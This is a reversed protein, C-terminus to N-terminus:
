YAPLFRQKAKKEAKEWGEERGEEWGRMRGKEWGKKWGIQELQEAITVIKEKQEDPSLHILRETFKEPDATNGVQLMYNLLAELQEGTANAIRLLHAVPELLELLDRQWIHKQVLELLAIRKHHLIEDDPMVTVDVLPFPNDRHEVGRLSPQDFTQPV